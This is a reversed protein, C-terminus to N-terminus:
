AKDNDDEHKRKLTNIYEILFTTEEVHHKKLRELKIAPDPEPDSDIDYRKVKISSYDPKLNPQKTLEEDQKILDREIEDIEAETLEEDLFKRHPERRLNTRLFYLLESAAQWPTQHCFPVAEELLAGEFIGYKGNGNSKVIQYKVKM